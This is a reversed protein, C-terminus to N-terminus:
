INCLLSLHHVLLKIAKLDSAKQNHYVNLLYLAVMQLHFHLSIAALHYNFAICHLPNTYIGQTHHLWVNSAKFEYSFCISQQVKRYAGTHIRRTLHMLWLHNLEPSSYFGILIVPWSRNKKKIIVAVKQVTWLKFPMLLLLVAYWTNNSQKNTFVLNHTIIKGDTTM